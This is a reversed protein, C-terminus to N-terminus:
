SDLGFLGCVQDPNPIRSPNPFQHGSPQGGEPRPRRNDSKWAIVDETRIEFLAEGLDM